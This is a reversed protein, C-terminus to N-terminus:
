SLGSQSAWDDFENQSLKTKGREAFQMTVPLVVYMGGEKFVGYYGHSTNFVAPTQRTAKAIKKDIQGFEVSSLPGAGTEGIERLLRKLNM